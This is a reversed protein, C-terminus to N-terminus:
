QIDNHLQQFLGHFLQYGHVSEGIVNISGVKLFGCVEMVKLFAIPRCNYGDSQSYAQENNVLCHTNTEEFCIELEM